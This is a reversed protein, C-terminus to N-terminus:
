QLIPTQEDTTLKMFKMFEAEFEAPSMGFSLKFTKAWGLKAINPYFVDLLVNPSTKYVLYAVAWTGIDYPSIEVSLHDADSLSINKYRLLSAKAADLKEVMIDHFIFDDLVGEYIPLQGSQRLESVARLSMYEASGESFWTPGFLRKRVKPDFEIDAIRPIVSRQVAHFYEHFIVQQADGAYESLEDTFGAPYSVVIQLFGYKETNSLQGQMKQTGEVVGIASWTRYEEFPRYRNQNLCVFKDMQRLEVRRACYVNLLDLIAPPKVGTVWVELPGYKPWHTTAVAFTEEVRKRAQESVDSAYFFSPNQETPVGWEPPDLNIAMSGTTSVEASSVTSSCSSALLVPILLGLLQKFRFIAVEDGDM